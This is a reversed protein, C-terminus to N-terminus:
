PQEGGSGDGVIGNINQAIGTLHSTRALKEPSEACIKCNDDNFVEPHSVVRWDDPVVPEVDERAIHQVTEYVYQGGMEAIVEDEYNDCVRVERTFRHSLADEIKDRVDETNPENADVTM